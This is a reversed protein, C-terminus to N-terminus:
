LSRRRGSPLGTAGVPQERTANLEEALKPQLHSLSLTLHGSVPQENITREQGVLTM